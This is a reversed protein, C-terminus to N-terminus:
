FWNCTSCGPPYVVRGLQTLGGSLGGGEMAVVDVFAIFLSSPLSFYLPFPTFITHNTHLGIVHGDQNPRWFWIAKGDSLGLSSGTHDWPEWCLAQATAGILQYNLALTKPWRFPLVCTPGQVSDSLLTLWLDLIFFFLFLIWIFHILQSNWLSFYFPPTPLASPYYLLYPMQRACSWGLYLGWVGNPGGFRGPTIERFVSPTIGRLM